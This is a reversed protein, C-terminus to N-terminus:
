PPPCAAVGECQGQRLICATHLPPAVSSLGSLRHGPLSPVRSASRLLWRLVSTPSYQTQPGWAKATSLLSTCFSAGPQREPRGLARQESGGGTCFFFPGLRSGPVVRSQPKQVTEASPNMKAFATLNMNSMFLSSRRQNIKPMLGQGEAREAEKWPGRRVPARKFSNEMSNDEALGGGHLPHHLLALAACEPWRCGPDAQIRGDWAITAEAM